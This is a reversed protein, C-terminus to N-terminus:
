RTASTLDRGGSSVESLFGLNVIEHPPDSQRSRGSKERDRIRLDNKGKMWM